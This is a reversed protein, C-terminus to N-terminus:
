PTTSQWKLSCASVMAGAVAPASSEGTPDTMSAATVLIMVFMAALVAAFARDDLSAGSWDRRPPIPTTESVRSM